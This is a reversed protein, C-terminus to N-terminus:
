LRPRLKLSDGGSPVTFERSDATLGLLGAAALVVIFAVILFFMTKPKREPHKEDVDVM